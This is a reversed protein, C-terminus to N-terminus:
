AQLEWKLIWFKLNNFCVQICFYGIGFSYIKIHEVIKYNTVEENSIM